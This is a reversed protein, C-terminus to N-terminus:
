KKYIDRSELKDLKKNILEVARALQDIQISQEVSRHAASETLKAAILEKGFGLIKDVVNTIVATTSKVEEVFEQSDQEFSYNIKM